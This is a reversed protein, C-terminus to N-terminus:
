GRPQQAQWLQRTMQLHAMHEPTQDLAHLLTWAVTHSQGSRPSTRQEGLDALTLGDLVQEAYVLTTALLARLEASDKGATAFEAERERGSPDMAIIDGFLYREAGATHAALVAPSNMEPGPSWDLAAQPLDALAEDIGKHVDALRAYLDAFFPEM